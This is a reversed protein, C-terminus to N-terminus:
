PQAQKNGMDELFNEFSHLWRDCVTIGRGGYRHFLYYNPNYCREKMHAWARYESTRTSKGSQGHTKNKSGSVKMKDSKYCGCSKVIGRILYSIANTRINGCDCQCVFLKEGKGGRTSATVLLRGYKKGIFDSDVIRKM